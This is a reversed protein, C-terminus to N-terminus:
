PKINQVPTTSLAPLAIFSAQSHSRSIKALGLYGRGYGVNDGPARVSRSSVWGARDGLRLAPFRVVRDDKWQHQRDIRAAFACLPRTRFPRTCSLEPATM